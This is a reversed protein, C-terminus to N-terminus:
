KSPSQVPVDESFAVTAEDRPLRESRFKRLRVEHSSEDADAATEFNLVADAFHETVSRNAPGDEEHCYVVGLGEVDLLREKLANCFDVYRDRSAAELPGVSDVILNAEEPLHELLATAEAIPDDGDLERITPSGTAVPSADLADRVVTASRETTLYLTGRTATLDHLLLEAQSAADAELAVISGPRPGGDLLGDLGGVGTSVRDPRRTAPDTQGPLRGSEDTLADAVDLFAEHVADASLPPEREPIAGVVDVDLEDVLGDPVTEARNVVVGAVPVDIRRAIDVTTRASEVSRETATTVVLVQDAASLPEVVDPGAGSPSDVLVEVTDYDLQKLTARLDVNEGSQQAPIVGVGPAGPVQKAVATVDTDGDLAAVTPEREVEATTHLDPLQRDADVAISPTGAAAFAKALGLTVTTKGCGGKAGAIAIM